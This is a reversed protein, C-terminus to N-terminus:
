QPGIQYARKADDFVQQPSARDAPSTQYSGPTAVPQCGVVVGYVRAALAKQAKRCNLPHLCGEIM